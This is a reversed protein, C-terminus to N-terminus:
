HHSFTSTDEVEVPSSQPVPMHMDRAHASNPTQSYFGQHTAADGGGMEIPHKPQAHLEHIEHSTAKIRRKKKVYILAIALLLALVGLSVGVGIGVKASQSLGNRNAYQSSTPISSTIDTTHSTLQATTSTRFDTSQFRVQIGLANIAGTIGTINQVLTYPMATPCCTQITETSAGIVNSANCAPRYGSPCLGPSYYLANSTLYGSPWCSGLDVPGQAWFKLDDDPVQYIRSAESACPTPPVFTTTLPGINSGM